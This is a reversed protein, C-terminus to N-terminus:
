RGPKREYDAEFARSRVGGRLATAKRCYFFKRSHRKLEAFVCTYCRADISLDAMSAQGPVMLYQTETISTLGKTGIM